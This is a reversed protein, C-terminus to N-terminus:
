IHILSLDEISEHILLRSGACCVQGQNFWIADVLGEVASDLDADEFVIFPSKGGLELTLSKGSGATKERIVRGVETSGTFAIKAIDPHNVLMEGVCGDGTIINIVGDPVGAESCIEAFLLATLSTYEAPKLVVTNGAALAPAIKWALMLLPFNWPIIQGCVGIPEMNQIKSMYIQALGAHYYFHRQALPIDIDRSERIPKGNDITELVSFLRSNKQLLRAISYLVKAREHPNVVSWSKFANKAAKVAKNVDRNTAQSLSAITEGNSPNVSKFGQKPSTFAGGIFHGFSSNHKLLWKKAEVASEPAVGYDMSDLIKKVSM